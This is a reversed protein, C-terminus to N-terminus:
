RSSPRRSPAARPRADAGLIEDKVSLLGLLESLARLDEIQLQEDVIQVYGSERLELVARKVTDVDLGVRSSLDMPSVRLAVAAGQDTASALAQHALKLLAVVIKAQTDRVMMVEIQDEADRLRRILQELVRSGVAPNSRLVHRFTEHDLVLASGESLAVATSNRPTGPMLASEGFLDGPQLVRLSREVAGVRKLLRVRGEQLLFAENAADGDSFLLEGAQFRRGFDALLRQQEAAGDETESDSESQATRERESM